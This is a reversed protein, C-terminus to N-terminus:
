FSYGLGLEVFPLPPTQPESINHMSCLGFKWMFGGAHKQYRLGLSPIIFYNHNTTNNNDELQYDDYFVHSFSLGADFHINKEGFYILAGYLISKDSTKGAPLLNQGYGTKGGVIILNNIQWLTREYILSGYLGQSGFNLYVTNKATNQNQKNEEQGMISFSLIILAQFILYKM